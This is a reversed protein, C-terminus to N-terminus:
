VVHRSAFRTSSLTSCDKVREARRLMSIGFSMEPSRRTFSASSNIPLATQLVRISLISSPCVLREDGPEAAVALELAELDRLQDIVDRHAETVTVAGQPAAGVVLHHLRICESGLATERFPEIAVALVLAAV